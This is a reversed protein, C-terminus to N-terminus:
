RKEDFDKNCGAEKEFAASGPAGFEWRFPRAKLAKEAKIGVACNWKRALVEGLATGV